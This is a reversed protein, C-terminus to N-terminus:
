RALVAARRKAEADELTALQRVEVPARPASFAQALWLAETGSPEVLDRAKIWEDMAAMRDPNTERLASRIFPRNEDIAVAEIARLTQADNYRAATALEARIEDDDMARVRDLASRFAQMMVARDGPSADAPIDAGIHVDTAKENLNATRRATLDDGLEGLRALLADYQKAIARAQDVDHLNANRRAAAVSEEFAEKAEYAALVAPDHNAAPISM